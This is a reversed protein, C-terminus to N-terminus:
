THDKLKAVVEDLGRDGIAVHVMEVHPLPGAVLRDRIEDAVESFHTGIHDSEELELIVYGRQPPPTMGGASAALWPRPWRNGLWSFGQCDCPPGKKRPFHCGDQNHRLAFHGCEDCISGPEPQEPDAIWPSDETM